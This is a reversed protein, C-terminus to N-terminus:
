MIKNLHRLPAQFKSASKVPSRSIKKKESMGSSARLNSPGPTSLSPVSVPVSEVQGEEVINSIKVGSRSASDESSPRIGSVAYWHEQSDKVARRRDVAQNVCACVRAVLQACSATEVYSWTEFVAFLTNSECIAASEALMAIGSNSFFNRQTFHPSGVFDQVRLLAGRVEDGCTIVHELIIIFKEGSAGPGAVFLATQQFVQFFM